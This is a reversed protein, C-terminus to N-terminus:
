RRLSLVKGALARISEADLEPGFAPMERRGKTVVRVIEAEALTSARLDAVPGRTETSPGGRGDRGHCRMCQQRWLVETAADGAAAQPGQAAAGDGSPSRSADDGSPAKSADGEVQGLDEPQDHDSPRWERIKGSESCALGALTLALLLARPARM